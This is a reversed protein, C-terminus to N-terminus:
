NKWEIEGANFVPGDKCVRKRQTKGDSGKVECSCSLCAGVGCAMHEELLVQCKLSHQQSIESISQLMGRPGCAYFCVDACPVRGESIDQKLVNTVFGKKGVSGDDTCVTVERAGIELFDKKVMEYFEQSGNVYGMDLSDPRKIALLLLDKNLAGLYIYVQKDLYRLREVLGALPAVGIGGAVIVAASEPGIAFGNGCPGIADIRGKKIESLRKTGEGVTKYLFDMTSPERELIDRIEVPLCNSKALAARNFNKYQIGHFSLPRRLTLPYGRDDNSKPDCLIHFFQGPSLSFTKPIEV